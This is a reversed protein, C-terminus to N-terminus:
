NCALAEAQKFFPNEPTLRIRDDEFYDTMSDTNNEVHFIESACDPLRKYNKIYITAHGNRNSSAPSYWAPFYEGNVKMGKKLLKIEPKEMTNEGAPTNILNM